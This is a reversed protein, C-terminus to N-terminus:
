LTLTFKLDMPLLKKLMEGAKQSDGAMLRSIKISLEGGETFGGDGEAGCALLLTNLDGPKSSAPTLSFRASLIKRRDEEALNAPFPALVEEWLTFDEVKAPFLNSYLSDIEGELFDLGCAAASIEWGCPTGESIDYSGTLNLADRMRQETM